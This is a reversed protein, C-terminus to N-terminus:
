YGPGYKKTWNHGRGGGSTPSVDQIMYHPVPKDGLWRGVPGINSGPKAENELVIPNFSREAFRLFQLWQPAVQGQQTFFHSVLGSHWDANAATDVHHPQYWPHGNYWQNGTIAGYGFQVAPNAKGSAYKGAAELLNNTHAYDYAWDFFEKVYGPQLRREPSGDPNAGGTRGGVFLDKLVEGPGGQGVPTPSTAYQVIANSLALAAPFGMLWRASTTNWASPSKGHLLQGVGRGVQAGGTGFAMITGLEWGISVTMLGFTQKLARPWFLNDQNLEGFRYDISDVIQRVAALMAEKTAYPNNRLWMSVENMAAANKQLPILHDFLPHNITDGVFALEKAALEVARPAALLGRRLSSEGPLGGVKSLADGHELALSGKRLATFLNNLPGAQTVDVGSASGGFHRRGTFRFNARTLLDVVHAMEPGYNDLGLYQRQGIRGLVHSDVLKPLVTATYGIEKLAGDLEGHALHGFAQTMGAALQEQAINKFHYGSLSLKLGTTMNVAMQLKDYLRGPNIELGGPLPISPWDYVGRGVWANYASAFQKPAQARMQLQKGGQTVVAKLSGRGNLYASGPLLKNGFSIVGDRYALGRVDASALYDRMGRWYVLESELPNLFKPTLGADIGDGMTPISRGLTYRGTGQRGGGFLRLAEDPRQWMHAFHDAVFGIPDLDGARVRQDIAGWADHELKGIAAVVPHLPSGPHIPVVSNSGALGEINDMVNRIVSRPAYTGTVPNFNSGRPAALEQKFEPVHRNLEKEMPEMMAAAMEWDRQALGMAQRMIHHGYERPQSAVWDNYEQIGMGQRLLNNGVIVGPALRVAGSGSEDSALAKLTTAVDGSTLAGYGKAVVGGVVGGALAMALTKLIPSEMTQKLIAGEDYRPTGDPMKAERMEGVLKQNEYEAVPLHVLSKLNGIVSTPDWSTMNGLPDTVADEPAQTPTAHPNAIKGHALGQGNPVEGPKATQYATERDESFKEAEAETDFTPFRLKSAQALAASQDESAHVPVGNQLWLGPVVAWKDGLQVTNTMENSWSGDPNNLYEGPLFPRSVDKTPYDPNLHLNGPLPGFTDLPPKVMADAARPDQTAQQYIDALPLGTETWASMLNAKIANVTPVDLGIGVHQGLGIAYDTLDKNTPLQAAVTPAAVGTTSAATPDDNADVSAQGFAETFDNPGKVSGNLLGHSYLGRTTADLTGGPVLGTKNGPDYVGGSAATLPHDNQNDAVNGRAVQALLDTTIKPDQYGLHQDVEHDTYGAQAANNRFNALHQDITAWDYGNLRADAMGNIATPIAGGAVLNADPQPQPSASSQDEAFKLSIGSDTVGPDAPAGTQTPDAM